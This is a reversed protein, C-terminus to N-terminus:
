LNKKWKKNKIIKKELDFKINLFENKDFYIM